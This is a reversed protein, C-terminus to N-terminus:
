VNIQLLSTLLTKFVQPCCSVSVDARWAWGVDTFCVLFPTPNHVTAIYVSFIVEATLGTHTPCVHYVGAWRTHCLILCIHKPDPKFTEKIAAAHQNPNPKKKKKTITSPARSGPTVHGSQIVCMTCTIRSYRDNLALCRPSNHWPNNQFAPFLFM